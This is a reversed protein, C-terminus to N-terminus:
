LLALHFQGAGATGYLRLCISFLRRNQPYTLMMKLRTQIKVHLRPPTVHRDLGPPQTTLIHTRIRAM